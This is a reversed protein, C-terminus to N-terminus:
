SITSTCSKACDSFTSSANLFWLQLSHKCQHESFLDDKFFCFTLITCGQVSEYIEGLERCLVKSNLKLSWSYISSARAPFPKSAMWYACFYKDGHCDVSNLLICSAIASRAKLLSVFHWGYLTALFAFFNRHNTSFPWRVPNTRDLVSPHAQQVTGRRYNCVKNGLM